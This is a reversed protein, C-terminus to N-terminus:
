EKEGPEWDKPDLPPVPDMLTVEGAHLQVATFFTEQIVIREPAM